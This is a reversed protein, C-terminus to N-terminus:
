HQVLHGIYTCAQGSIFRSLHIQSPFVSLHIHTSCNLSTCTSEFSLPYHLGLCSPYKQTRSPSRSLNKHSSIISLIHSEIISLPNRPTVHSLLTCITQILSPLESSMSVFHCMWHFIITTEPYLCRVGGVFSIARPVISYYNDNIDYFLCTVVM